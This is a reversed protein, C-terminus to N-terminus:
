GGGGGWVCVCVRVEEEKFNLKSELDAVTSAKEKRLEFLQTSKTELETSLWKNQSEVLQKEQQLLQEKLRQSAEQSALDDLRCVFYSSLPQNVRHM